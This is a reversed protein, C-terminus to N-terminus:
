SKKKEQQNDDKMDLKCAARSSLSTCSSLPVSQPISKESAVTQDFRLKQTIAAVVEGEELNIVEDGNNIRSNHNTQNNNTADSTVTKTVGKCNTAGAEVENMLRGM